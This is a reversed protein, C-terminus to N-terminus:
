QLKGAIMQKQPFNFVTESKEHVSLSRLLVNGFSKIKLSEIDIMRFM